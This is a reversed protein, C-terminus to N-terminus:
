EGKTEVLDIRIDEDYFINPYGHNMPNMTRISIFKDSISSFRPDKWITNLGNEWYKMLPYDNINGVTMPIYMSPKIYGDATICISETNYDSNTLGILHDMPDGWELKLANSNKDHSKNFINRRLERYQEDSPLIDLNTHARGLPMLEQVRLENVNYKLAVEYVHDFDKINWSTPAFSIGSIIGVRDLIDLAEVAKSYAQLNKRLKNHSVEKGDLSVQINNIGAEKLDLALKKTLFHGNTVLSTPIERKKLKKAMKIILDARLLPEGGCFCLGAPKVALIEDIFKIAQKDDLDSVHSNEGSNNYCHLCRYNCNSTIDYAITLPGNLLSYM